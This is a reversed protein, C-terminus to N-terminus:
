TLDLSYLIERFTYNYRITLFTLLYKCGMYNHIPDLGPLGPCSDEEDCGYSPRSAVSTDDVMDGDGDCKKISTM